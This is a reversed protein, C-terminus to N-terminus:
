VGEGCQLFHLTSLVSFHRMNYMNQLENNSLIRSAHYEKRAAFHKLCTDTSTDTVLELIRDLNHLTTFDTPISLQTDPNANKVRGRCRVLSNDPTLSCILNGKSRRSIISESGCGKLWM